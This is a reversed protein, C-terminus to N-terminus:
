NSADFEEMATYIETIDDLGLIISSGNILIECQSDGHFDEYILITAYDGVTFNIKKDM